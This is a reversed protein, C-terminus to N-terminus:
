LRSITWTGSHLSERERVRESTDSLSDPQVHIRKTKKREEKTAKISADADGEDGAGCSCARIFPFSLPNRCQYRSHGVIHLTFPVHRQVRPPLTRHEQDDRVKTCTNLERACLCPPQPQVTTVHAFITTDTHSQKGFFHTRMHPRKSAAMRGDAM